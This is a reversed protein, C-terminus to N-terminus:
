VFRPAFIQLLLAGLLILSLASATRSVIRDRRATELRPRLKGVLGGFADRFIHGGDLPGLPLVNTLGVMLNIWFVWFMLLALPWFVAPEFPEEHFAPLYTSLWPLGRIEGIPLSVLKLFNVGGGGLPDGLFAMDTRRIPAVGLFAEEQLDEALQPDEEAIEQQTEPSQYEWRSGLTVAVERGDRMQFNVDDGPSKEDMFARFDEWDPFATGDGSVIIDGAEMGGTAAPAEPTVGAVLVGAHVTLSGVLLAFAALSAAAVTLNVGPGAGFVRLRARRPAAKLDDEDPEVFAGIPVVAFLLGLSKLRMGNARALVGHGGEHVILTVILAILGYWLPVFPTVGPIIVVEAPGPASLGSDPQLAFWASYLFFVTILLMLVLTVVTGVDGFFNWFRKPRSLAEITDKGRQTRVMLAFGLMLSLNWKQMRGTQVLWVLFVVYLVVLGLVILWGSSV